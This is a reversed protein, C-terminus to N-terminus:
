KVAYRYYHYTNMVASGAKLLHTMGQKLDALYEVIREHHHKFGRDERFWCVEAMGPALIDADRMCVNWSVRKRLQDAVGQPLQKDVERLDIQVFILVPLVDKAKGCDVNCGFRGFSAFEHPTHCIGDGCVPDKWANEIQDKLWELFLVDNKPPVTALMVSSTMRRDRLFESPLVIVSFNFGLILLNIFLVLYFKRIKKDDDLVKLLVSATAKFHTYTKLSTQSSTNDELPM